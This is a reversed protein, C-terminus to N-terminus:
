NFNITLNQKLIYFQRIIRYLLLLLSFINWIQSFFYLPLLWRPHPLFVVNLTCLAHLGPWFVRARCDSASV